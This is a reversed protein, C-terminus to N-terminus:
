LYYRRNIRTHALTTTGAGFGATGFGQNGFGGAVNREFMQLGKRLTQRFVKEEKILTEIV